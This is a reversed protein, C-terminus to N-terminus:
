SSRNGVGKYQAPSFLPSCRLSGDDNRLSSHSLSQSSGSLGGMHEINNRADHQDGFRRSLDSERLVIFEPPASTASSQGVHTPEEASCTTLTTGLKWDKTGTLVAITEQFRDSDTILILFTVSFGYSTWNDGPGMGPGFIGGVSLFMMTVNFSYLISRTVAKMYLQLKIFTSVKRVQSHVQVIRYQTISFLVTEVISYWFAEVITIITSRPDAEQGFSTIYNKIFFFWGTGSLAVQCVIIILPILWPREFGVLTIIAARYSTHYTVTLWSVVWALSGLIFMYTAATTYGRGIVTMGALFFSQVLLASILFFTISLKLHKNKIRLYTDIFCTLVAIQQVFGAALRHVNADSISTSM